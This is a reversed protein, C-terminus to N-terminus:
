SKIYTNKENIKWIITGNNDKTLINGNNNDIFKFFDKSVKNKNKLKM